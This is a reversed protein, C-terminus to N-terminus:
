KHLIEQKDWLAVPEMLYGPGRVFSYITLYLETSARIISPWLLYKEAGTCFGKPFNGDFNFYIFLRNMELQAKVIIM